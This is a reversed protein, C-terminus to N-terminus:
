AVRSGSAVSCLSTVTNRSDRSGEEQDFGPYIIIGAGLNEHTTVDHESPVSTLHDKSIGDDQKKKLKKVENPIAGGNSGKSIGDDRKKRVEKGNYVKAFSVNRESM